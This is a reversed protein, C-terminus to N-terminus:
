KPWIHKEIATARDFTRSPSETRSHENICSEVNDSVGVHNRKGAKTVNTITYINQRYCRMGSMCLMEKCGRRFNSNFCLYVIPKSVTTSFYIWLAAIYIEPDVITDTNTSYWLNVIFYPVVPLLVCLNVLMILKIMKVKARPVPNVTGCIHRGSTSARWIHRAIRAYLVTIVVLPITYMVSIIFIIFFLSDWTDGLFTECWEYNKRRVTNFFHLCPCCLILSVTWSGAIMRQATSRTIKFTLPYIITYFRDICISVLVAITSCPVVYQVYRVVKCMALGVLWNGAILRSWIFPICLLTFCLDGCALSVVFYNTTSQLRKSYRIVVCVLTNATLSFMWMIAM